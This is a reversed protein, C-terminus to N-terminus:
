ISVGAQYRVSPSGMHLWANSVAGQKSGPLLLEHDWKDMARILTPCLIDCSVWIVILLLIHLCFSSELM